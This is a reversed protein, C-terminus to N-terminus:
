EEIGEVIENYENILLNYEEEDLFVCINNFSDLLKTMNLAGEENM